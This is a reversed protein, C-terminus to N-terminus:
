SRILTIVHAPRGKTPKPDISLIGNAKAADLMMKLKPGDIHFVRQLDSPTCPSHDKIYNIIRDELMHARSETFKGLMQPWAKEVTWLMQIAFEVDEDEMIASGREFASLLALKHAHIECMKLYFPTFIPEKTKMRAIARMYWADFIVGASESYRYETDPRQSYDRLRDLLAFYKTKDDSTPRPIIQTQEIQPILLIRPFFGSEIHTTNGQLHANVQSPTTAAGWCLYPGKYDGAYGNIGPRLETIYTEGKGESGRIKKSTTKGDFLKMMEPRMPLNMKEDMMRFATDAEQYFFCRHPNEAMDIIFSALSYYQSAIRSEDIAQVLKQATSLATSKKASSEGCLLMWLHPRYDWNGSRYVHGWGAVCSLAYLGSWRVFTEPCATFERHYAVFDDLYKM